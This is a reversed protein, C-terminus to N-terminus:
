SEESDVHQLRDWDVGQTSRLGISMEETIGVTEDTFISALETGSNNLVRFGVGADSDFVFRMDYVEDPVIDIQTEEALVESGDGTDRTIRIGGQMHVILRWGPTETSWSDNEMGVMIWPQVTNSDPRMLVSVERGNEPYETLGQGPFSRIQSEGDQRIGRTSNDDLAASLDVDASGSGDITWSSSLEGSDYEEFDDIVPTDTTDSESEDNESRLNSIELEYAATNECDDSSISYVATGNPEPGTEDEQQVTAIETETENYLRAEIEILFEEDTTNELEVYINCSDRSSGDTWTYAHRTASLSEDATESLHVEGEISEDEYEEADDASENSETDSENSEIDSENEGDVDDTDNGASADTQESGNDSTENEATEESTENDESDQDSEEEDLPEIVGGCGALGISLTTGASGLVTRRRM